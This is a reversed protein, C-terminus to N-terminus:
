SMGSHTCCWGEIEPFRRFQGRIHSYSVIRPAGLVRVFLWEDAAPWSVLLWRGDPSWLVQRLGTASLLRRATLGGAAVPELIVDSGRILALTRGDPSLAADVIRGRFRMLEGGAPAYVVAAERALALLRAGDDSWALAKTSPPAATQGYIELTDADQIVLRAHSSVYALQYPHGPRWAPAVPAVEPVMMRDNTRDGAVVRLQSGSLYAVRYGSPGYWRPNSVHPRDLTWAVRGQPDVARLQDHGVVAAYKGQPSWTAQGYAGLRRTSGRGALTWTGASSSLLLTGAAPLSTVAPAV